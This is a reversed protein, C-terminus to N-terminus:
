MANSTTPLSLILTFNQILRSFSIIFLAYRVNVPSPTPHWASFGLGSIIKPEKFGAYPGREITPKQRRMNERKICLIIYKPGEFIIYNCNPIKENKIKKTWYSSRVHVFCCDQVKFTCARKGKFLHLSDFKLVTIDWM